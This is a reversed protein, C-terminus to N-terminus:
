ADPRTCTYGCVVLLISAGPFFTSHGLHRRALDKAPVQEFPTWEPAPLATTMDAYVLSWKLAVYNGSVEM